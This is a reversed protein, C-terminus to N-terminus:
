FVGRWMKENDILLEIRRKTVRGGTVIMRTDHLEPDCCLTTSLIIVPFTSCSVGLEEPCEDDAQFV